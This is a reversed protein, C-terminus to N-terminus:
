SDVEEGSSAFADGYRYAELSATRLLEQALGLCGSCIVFARANVIQGDIVNTGDNVVPFEVYDKLSEGCVDCRGVGAKAYIVLPNPQKTSPVTSGVSSKTGSM